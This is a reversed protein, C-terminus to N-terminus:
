TKQRQRRRAAYSCRCQKRQQRREEPQRAERPVSGLSAGLSIFLNILIIKITSLRVPYRTPAYDNRGVPPIEVRDPLNRMESRKM